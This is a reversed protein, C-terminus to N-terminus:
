ARFSRHTKDPISKRCRRRVGKFIYLVLHFSSQQLSVQPSSVDVRCILWPLDDFTGPALRFHGLSLFRAAAPLFASQPRHDTALDLDTGGSTPRSLRAGSHIRYLIARMSLHSTKSSPTDTIVLHGQPHKATGEFLEALVCSTIVLASGIFLGHCVQCKIRAAPV